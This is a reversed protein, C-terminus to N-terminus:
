APLRRRRFAVAIGILALSLWGGAGTHGAACGGAVEQPGTGGPTSPDTPDTPDTPNTPDTWGEPTVHITVSVTPGFWTVGEQVLQYTEIFDTPQDVQPAVIAFTFRGVSGPAYNSHDAGTPRSPSIWNGEKYFPSERDQPNTCGLRTNDLDWTTSSDNVFEFWVVAEEGSTMETPVEQASFQAEYTVQNWFGAGFEGDLDLTANRYKAEQSSCGCCGNYRCSVLSIWQEFKANGAQVPVSNLWNIADATSSVGSIDQRVREAVFNVAHRINGDLDLIEQGDRALTQSYTGGDFQFMGLGGQQSSCPGDAAGAIVPGGCSGSYPGQCAWTAESWCHSLGTEVQAIGALLAGNTLGKDAAADRIHEARTRRAAPDSLGQVTSGIGDDPAPAGQEATCAALFVVCSLLIWSRM